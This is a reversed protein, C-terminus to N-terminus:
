QASRKVIGLWGHGRAKKHRDFKRRRKAAAAKLAPAVAKATPPKGLGEAEYHKAIAARIDRSALWHDTGGTFKFLADIASGLPDNQAFLDDSEAVSARSPEPLWNRGESFRDFGTAALNALLALIAGSESQIITDALGAIREEKPLAHCKIVVLRRKLGDDWGPLAPPANGYLLLKATPRFTTSDMRMRNATLEEGGTLEKFLGSRIRGRDPIETGVGFRAGDLRLMWEPHRERAHRSAVLVDPPLKTAYDGLIHTVIETLTTKGAGAQGCLIPAVQDTVCTHGTLAYGTWSLLWDAAAEDGGVMDNVLKLFRDPSPANPDPLTGLRRSIFEDRSADRADGTTLDLVRGEPLGAVMPDADWLPKEQLEAALMAVAGSVTANRLQLQLGVAAAKTEALCKLRHRLDAAHDDRRWEWRKPHAKYWGRTPDYIRRNRSEKDFLDVLENDHFKLRTPRYTSSKKSRKSEAASARSPPPGNSATKDVTVAKAAMKPDLWKLVADEGELRRLDDYDTPKTELEVFDPVCYEVGLEEAATRAAHVGPNVEEGDRKVLKWRDNDAAIIIEAEPFKKQIAKGVVLLGGDFFAVIVACDTAKHISWGTAWGECIYLTKTEKFRKAGITDYLGASGGPQWMQKRTGDPWIRQINRLQKKGNRMPILLMTEGTKPDIISKLVEVDRIGKGELYPHNPCRKARNWTDKIKATAKEAAKAREKRAEKRRRDVEEASLKEAHKMKEKWEPSGGPWKWQEKTRNDGFIAGRQDAFAKVWGNDGRGTQDIGPFRHFRSDWHIDRPHLGCEAMAALLEETPDVNLM